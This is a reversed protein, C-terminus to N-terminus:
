HSLDSLLLTERLKTFEGMMHRVPVPIIMSYTHVTHLKGVAGLTEVHYQDDGDFGGDLLLMQLPNALILIMMWEM